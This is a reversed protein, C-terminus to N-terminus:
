VQLAFATHRRSHCNAYNENQRRKQRRGSSVRHKVREQVASMSLCLSESQDSQRLLTCQLRTSNGACFFCADYDQLKPDDVPLTM